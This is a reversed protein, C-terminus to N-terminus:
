WLQEVWPTLLWIFQFIGYEPPDPCFKYVHKRRRKPKTADERKGM